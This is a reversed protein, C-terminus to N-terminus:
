IGYITNTMIEQNSALCYIRLSTLSVRVGSKYVRRLMLSDQRSGIEGETM